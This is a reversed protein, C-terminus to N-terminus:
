LFDTESSDQAVAMVTFVGYKNMDTFDVM